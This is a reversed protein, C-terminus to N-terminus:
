RLGGVKSYVTSPNFMQVDWAAGAAADIAGINGPHFIGKVWLRDTSAAQGSFIRHMGDIGQWAGSSYPAAVSALVNNGEAIRAVGFAGEALLGAAKVEDVCIATLDDVQTIMVNCGPNALALSSCYQGIQQFM